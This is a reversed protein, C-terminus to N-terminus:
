YRVGFEEAADILWDALYRAFSARVLIRYDTGADDLAILVVGALGLMTQAATGPGFVTPHLDLSCGKALVDRAHPVACGCRPASRPSTSRPAATSPWPRECSSGGTGGGVADRRHDAVGRARVLHRHAHGNSDVVTSPTTPLTSSRPHGVAQSGGPGAPDVWLDVMAVFPEESIADCDPLHPSRARELGAAPKPATLTDAM